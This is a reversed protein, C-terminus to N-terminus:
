EAAIRDLRTIVLDLYSAVEGMNQKESLRVEAIDPEIQAYTRPAVQKAFALATQAVLCPARYFPVEAGLKAPDFDKAYQRYRRLVRLMTALFEKERGRMQERFPPFHYISVLSGLTGSARGIEELSSQTDLELSLEEYVALVGDCLDDREFLEAFGNHMIRLRAFARAPNDFIAMEFRFIPRSFCEKALTVTDLSQYHSADKMWKESGWLTRGSKRYEVLRREFEALGVIEDIHEDEFLRITEALEANPNVPLDPALPASTVSENPGRPPPSQSIPQAAPTERVDQHRYSSTLLVAVGVAIVLILGAICMRKSAKRDM